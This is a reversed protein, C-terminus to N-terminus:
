ISIDYRTSWDSVKFSQIQGSMHGYYKFIEYEIQFAPFQTAIPRQDSNLRLDEIKQDEDNFVVRKDQSYKM